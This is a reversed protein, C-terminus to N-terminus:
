SKTKRRCQSREEGTKSMARTLSHLFHSKQGARTKNMKQGWDALVETLYKETRRLAKIDSRIGVLKEQAIEYVRRCPAGGADHTKLAESLESLTFGIRLARQVILVREVASEACVRYGAETRPARPLVGVKEYHRITDPSVRTAKALSASRHDRGNSRQVMFVIFRARMRPDLVREAHDQRM